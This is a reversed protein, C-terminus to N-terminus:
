AVRVIAESHERCDRYLKQLFALAGGYDGWGNAPNLERFRGPDSLMRDIAPGIRHTAAKATLGDIGFLGRGGFAAQFMPAVNYTYNGHTGDLEAWEDGVMAGLSVDYSM